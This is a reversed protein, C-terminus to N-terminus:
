QAYCQNLELTTQQNLVAMESQLTARNQQTSVVEASTILAGSSEAQTLAQSIARIQTLNSASLAQTQIQQVQALAANARTIQNNYSAIRVELAAVKAEAANAQPSSNNTDWCVQLTTLNSQANQIDTISGQQASGYQQARQVVAQLKQLIDQAEAAAQADQPTIQGGVDRSTLNSLGKQFVNTILSNVLASIIQDISEALQLSDLNSKFVAELESEITTGPTVIHCNTKQTTVEGGFGEVLVEDCEEQSLFGGPSLKLKAEATASSVRNGLHVQAAAYAGFPNNTPVTTFSILGPWGGESFNGNMFNEVNGVVSTLTCSQQAAAGSTRRAYSQAIAIRVQLQFPSCLFALDGGQIVSGAAKDAVDTFFKDFDQVFAPEGEFGSNIWSVTQSTIQQIAIRALARVICGILTDASQGAQSNMDNTQVSVFATLAGSAAAVTFGVAKQAVFNAICGGAVGLLAGGLGVGGPGQNNPNNFYATGEISVNNIQNIPTPNYSVGGGGGGGGNTGDLWSVGGPFYDDDNDNPDTFDGPTTDTPTVYLPTQVNNGGGSGPLTDTTGGIIVDTNNGSGTGGGVGVGRDDASGFGGLNEEVEAQKGFLWFWLLFMLALILLAGVLIM